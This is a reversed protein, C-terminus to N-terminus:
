HISLQASYDFKKDIQNFYDRDDPTIDGPFFLWVFSILTEQSWFFHIASPNELLKNRILFLSIERKKDSSFNNLDSMSFRHNKKTDFEQIEDEVWLLEDVRESVQPPTSGWFIWPFHNELKSSIVKFSLM